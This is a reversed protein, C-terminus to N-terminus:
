IMAIDLGFALNVSEGDYSQLFTMAGEPVSNGPRASQSDSRVDNVPQKTDVAFLLFTRSSFPDGFAGSLTAGSNSNFVKRCLERLPPSLPTLVSDDHGYGVLGPCGTAGSKLNFVKDLMETYTQFDTNFSPSGPVQAETSTALIMCPITFIVRSSM